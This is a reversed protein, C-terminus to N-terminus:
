TLESYKFRLSMIDMYLVAYTEDDTPTPSLLNVMVSFDLERGTEHYYNKPVIIETFTQRSSGKKVIIVSSWPWSFWEEINFGIALQGESLSFLCLYGCEM